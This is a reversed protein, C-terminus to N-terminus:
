LCGNIISQVQWHWYKLNELTISSPRLPGVVSLRCTERFAPRHSACSLLMPPYAQVAPSLKYLTITLFPRKLLETVTHQAEIMM